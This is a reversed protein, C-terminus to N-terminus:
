AGPSVFHSVQLGVRQSACEGDAILEDHSWGVGDGGDGHEDHTTTFSLLDAM